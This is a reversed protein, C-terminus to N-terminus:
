WGTAMCHSVYFYFVDFDFRYYITARVAGCKWFFTLSIILEYHMILTM